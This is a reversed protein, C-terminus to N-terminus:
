RSVSEQGTIKPSMRSDGGHQHLCHRRRRRRSGHRSGQRGGSSRGRGTHSRPRPPPTDRPTGPGRRIRERWSHMSRFHCTRRRQPQPASVHMRHPAGDALSKHKRAVKSMHPPMGPALKINTTQWSAQNLHALMCSFLRCLLGAAFQPQSFCNKTFVRSVQQPQGNPSVVQLVYCM